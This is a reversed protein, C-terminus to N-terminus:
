PCAGVALNPYAQGQFALVFQQIDSVNILANPTDGHIDVWPLPPGAPPNQFRIVAAQIDAVNMVGNPPLWSSTQASFGGTCDGWVAGGTPDPTTPTTTPPSLLALATAQCACHLAQVEYNQAPVIACDTIHIVEPQTDWLLCSRTTGLRYVDAPDGPQHAQVWWTRGTGPHRVRIGFTEGPALSGPSISLYRNKPGYCQGDICTSVGFCQANTTCTGITEPPVPALQVCECEDPVGSGNIDTSFHQSLDCEDPRSNSQCDQSFGSAVDCTDVAFNANCDVLSRPRFAFGTPSTLLNDGRIFSRLYRGAALDYELIRIQGTNRGVFLNGNPGIRLGWAGNPIIGTTVNRLFVGTPSYELVGSNNFSAVLLRNNSTFVMGRPGSLGGSGASVFVDIFAGSFGDYRRVSNDSGAVFLRGLTGFALGYPGVLGGSGSAVFTQIFAGTTGDFELVSNTLNSSVFLNGNPGFVLSSPGNLGGSGAAVFSSATGADVDVRVIQDNGFSAVYLQRDPGFVADYPDLLAGAGLTRIGVGSDRHYERVNDALQAVFVHHSRGVDIYDVIGNEDCDDCNDGRTNRDIDQVIGTAIEMHDALGNGDCDPDCEDPIQNGNDDIALGQAIETEDPISNANCDAECTDLISNNNNDAAGAVVDAPDLIGNEDCDECEDPIGNSNVDQSTLMSIDDADSVLNGNCDFPLCTGQTNLAVVDQIRRHFRMDTNLLGGPVTHCYSMIDSRAFAGTSGCQDIPPTYSDHTHGTSSNHGMEHAVVVVDWNGLNSPGVPQPFSGLLISSIGFAFQSCPTTLYAIGGYTTDRSGSFMHVYNLGSLNEFNIWYDRFGSLDTAIFPEDGNPWTRVFTLVLRIDLDRVYIDSVAAIVQAIYAQAAVEDGGFLNVFFHDADVAVTALMPGAYLTTSRAESAGDAHIELAIDHTGCFESFEPVGFLNADRHVALSAGAKNSARSVFYRTGDSLQIYGNAPGHSSFSLFVHSGPEGHVVGRSVMVDPRALATQGASSASYFRADPTLIEFPQLELTAVDIPSLPVQVTTSGVAHRLSELAMPDVEVIVGTNGALVDRMHLLRQPAAFLPNVLVLGFLTAAVCARLRYHNSEFM